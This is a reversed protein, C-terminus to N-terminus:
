KCFLYIHQYITYFYILNIKNQKRLCLSNKKSARTARFSVRYVLSVSRSSLSRGAEAELTSPISSHAVVGPM